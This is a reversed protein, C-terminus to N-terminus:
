CFYFSVVPKCAMGAEMMTKRTVRVNSSKDVTYKALHKGDTNRTLAVSPNGRVNNVKFAFVKDGRKLGLKVVASNPVCFTGRGDVSRGSKQDDIIVLVSDQATITSTTPTATTAKTVPTAPATQTTTMVPVSPVTSTMVPVPPVASTVKGYSFPDEGVPHYVFASLGRGEDVEVLTKMYPPSTESNEM